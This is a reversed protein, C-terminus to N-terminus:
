WHPIEIRVKENKYKLFNEVFYDQGRLYLVNSTYYEGEGNYLFRNMADEEIEYGFKKYFDKKSCFGIATMNKSLVYERIEEVLKGGFGKGKEVSLVRSIGLISYVSGMFEIQTLILRGFSVTRENDKVFFFIQDKFENKKNIKLM